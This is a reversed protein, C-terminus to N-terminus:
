MRIGPILVIKGIDGPPLPATGTFREAAYSGKTITVGVLGIPLGDLDFVLADFMVAKVDGTFTVSLEVEGSPLRRARPDTIGRLDDFLAPEPGKFLVKSTLGIIGVGIVAPLQDQDVDKLDAILWTTEGPGFSSETFDLILGKREIASDAGTVLAVDPFSQNVTITDKTTNKVRVFALVSRM